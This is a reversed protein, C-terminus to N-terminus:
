SGPGKIIWLSVVEDAENDFFSHYEEHDLYLFHGYVCVIAKGKLHLDRLLPREGRKYDIRKRIPLNARIYKNASALTAYGDNKLEPVDEPIGKLACTVAVISCPVGDLLDPPKIRKM